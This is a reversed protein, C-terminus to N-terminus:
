GDVTDVILFFMELVTRANTKESVKHGQCICGGLFFFLFFDHM